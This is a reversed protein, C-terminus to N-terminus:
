KDCEFLQRAQAAKGGYEALDGLLKCAETRVEGNIRFLDDDTTELSELAGRVKVILNYIREERSGDVLNGEGVDPTFEYLRGLREQMAQWDDPSLSHGTPSPASARRDRLRSILDHFAMLYDVLSGAMDTELAHTEGPTAIDATFSAVEAAAMGASPEVADLVGAAPNGTNPIPQSDPQAAPQQSGQYRTVEVQAGQREDNDFGIREYRDSDIEQRQFRRMIEMFAYIGVAAGAATLLASIIKKARDFM